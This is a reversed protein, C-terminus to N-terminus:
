PYHTSRHSVLAVQRLLQAQQANSALFDLMGKMMWSAPTEGPHVRGSIFLAPKLKGAKGSASSSSSKKAGSGGGGLATSLGNVLVGGGGYNPFGNAAETEMAAVTIPGIKDKDIKDKYNTIVLLDCDEGGLTQTLRSLRIIDSAGPKDLIDSIHSKYDSVTYPYSYALLITDKPNHLEITFSLTFYV